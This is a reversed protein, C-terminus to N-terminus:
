ESVETQPRDRGDSLEEHWKGSSDEYEIGDSKGAIQQEGAAREAARVADDHTPFTESYTSGVQYAWGGDHELIKYVVKTM